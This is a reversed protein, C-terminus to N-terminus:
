NTRPTDCESKSEAGYKVAMIPRTATTVAIMAPMNINAIYSKGEFWPVIEDTRKFIKEHLCRKTVFISGTTKLVILEITQV